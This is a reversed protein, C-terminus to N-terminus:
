HNNLILYISSLLDSYFKLPMQKCEENTSELYLTLVPWVVQNVTKVLSTLATGLPSPLQMGEWLGQCCGVPLGHGRIGQGTHKGSQWVANEKPESMVCQCQIKMIKKCLVINQGVLNLEQSKWIWKSSTEGLKKNGLSKISNLKHDFCKELKWFTMRCLLLLIASHNLRSWTSIWINEMYLRMYAQTLKPSMPM